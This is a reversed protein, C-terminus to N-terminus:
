CIKTTLTLLFVKALLNSADPDIQNDLAGNEVLFLLREWIFERYLDYVHDLGFSELVTPDVHDNAFSHVDDYFAAHMLNEGQKVSEKLAGFQILLRATEFLGCRVAIMLPSESANSAPAVYAGAKLLYSIINNAGIRAAVHLATQGSGDFANVNAGCAVVFDVLDVDGTSVAQNLLTQVPNHSIDTTEHLDSAPEEDVDFGPASDDQQDNRQHLPDDLSDLAETEFMGVGMGSVMDSELRSAASKPQRYDYSLVNRTYAASRVCLGMNKGDNFASKLTKVSLRFGKLQAHEWTRLRYAFDFRDDDSNLESPDVHHRGPPHHGPCSSKHEFAFGCDGKAASAEHRKLDSEHVFSIECSKCRRRNSDGDFTNFHDALHKLLIQTEDTEFKTGCLGCPLKRNDGKGRVQQKRCAAADRPDKAISTCSLQQSLAEMVSDRSNDPIALPCSLDVKLEGSTVIPGQATAKEEQKRCQAGLSNKHPTNPRIQKGCRPCPAKGDQHQEKNHRELDYARAFTQECPECAFEPVLDLAPDRHKRNERQHRLLSKHETFSRNCPECKFKKTLADSQDTGARKRSPAPVSPTDSTITQDM